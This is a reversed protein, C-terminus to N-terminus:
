LPRVQAAIKQVESGVDGGLRRSLIEHGAGMLVRLPDPASVGYAEASELFSDPILLVDKPGVKGPEFTVPEGFGPFDSVSSDPTYITGLTGNTLGTAVSSTKRVDHNAHSLATDASRLSVAGLMTLNHEPDKTVEGKESGVGKSETSAAGALLTAMRADPRLDRTLPYPRNLALVKIDPRPFEGSQDYNPSLMGQVRRVRGGSEQHAFVMPEYAALASVLGFVRENCLPLTHVQVDRKTGDAGEPRITQTPFRKIVDVLKALNADISLRESQEVFAVDGVKEGGRRGIDVISEM